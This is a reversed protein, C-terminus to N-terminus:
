PWGTAPIVVGTRGKGAESATCTPRRRTRVPCCTLSGPSSRSRQHSWTPSRSKGPGCCAPSGAEAIEPADGGDDEACLNVTARYGRQGALDALKAADPRHGRAVTESVRYTYPPVPYHSLFHLLPVQELTGFSDLAVTEVADLIRRRLSIGPGTGAIEAAQQRVEDPLDELAHRFHRM